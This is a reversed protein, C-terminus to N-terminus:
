ELQRERRERHARAAALPERLPGDGGVGAADCADIFRGLAEMEHLHRDRLADHMDKFREYFGRLQDGRRLPYVPSLRGEAMEAFYGSVKYLPGAVKHTMVLLVVILLLETIVWAVGMIWMLNTDSQGLREVITSQLEPGFDSASLTHIISESAQREQAWVLYGLGAALAGSLVTVVAVYTLQLRKDLIINSVRRRRKSRNSM